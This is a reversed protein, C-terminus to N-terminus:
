KLLMNKFGRGSLHEQQLLFVHKGGGLEVEIKLNARAARAKISTEFQPLIYGCSLDL